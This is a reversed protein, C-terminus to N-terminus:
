QPASLIARVGSGYTELAAAILGTANAVAFSQGKINHEPPVGPIPRPYGSARARVEGRDLTTLVCEDRPCTWDLEVGIVGAIGGPLWQHRDDPAAAVVIAGGGIARAVDAELGARHEENTTGLSLNVIDAKADIAWRFASGLAAGTTTLSRSFIKVSLIEADPAKEHIAAAVATGHGVRDVVDSDEIGLEDFAVAGAIAGLHPHGPHIGSDIVAIRVGRGTRGALSGPLLVRSQSM